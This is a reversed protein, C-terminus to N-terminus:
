AIAGYGARQAAPEAALTLGYTEPTVAAFGQLCLDALLRRGEADDPLGILADTLAARTRAPTAASAVFPPMPYAPSSAVIRVRWGPEHRQLLALAYSDIGTIDAEGALVAEVARRPTGFPGAIAGFLNAGRAMGALHARPANYGSHSDTATYAYRHGFGDELRTLPSDAAVVFDSRYLPQGASWAADPVPAALVHRGMPAKAYPWGCMFVCGLDDRAWLDALPAPWAHDIIDLPTAARASVLALLARWSAAAGPAVAYM